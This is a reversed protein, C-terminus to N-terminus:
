SAFMAVCVFLGKGQLRDVVKEREVEMEAPNKASDALIEQSFDGLDEEESAEDDSSSGNILVNPWRGTEIARRYSAKRQLNQEDMDTQRQRVPLSDKKGGLWASLRQMMGIKRKGSTAETGSEQSSQSGVMDEDDRAETESRHTTEAEGNQLDLPFAAGGVCDFM